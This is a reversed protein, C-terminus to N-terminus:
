AMVKKKFNMVAIEYAELWRWAHREYTLNKAVERGAEALEQRYSVDRLLRTLQRSWDHQNPALVGAGARVLRRYEATSSAVFPVGLAAYELGKIYSKAENFPSIKLPVLGVDLGAIASPYKELEVWPCYASEGHAFGVHQSTAPSGIAFFVAGEARVARVLGNGMVELDGPHTLPSGTWGVVTRGTFLEWNAEPSIEASLYWEPILNRLVKVHASPVARALAPTSVTVLDAAQCATTLHEYNRYPSTLPHADAHAINKKDISWFDDDLEVVVATGNAQMFPIAQAHTGNMTRQLVVVDYPLPDVAVVNAYGDWTAM